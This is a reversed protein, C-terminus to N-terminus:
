LPKGATEPRARMAGLSLNTSDGINEKYIGSNDGGDQDYEGKEEGIVGQSPGGGMSLNNQIRGRV